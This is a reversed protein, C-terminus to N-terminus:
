ARNAEAERWAQFIAEKRTDYSRWHDEGRIRWCPTEGRALVYRLGEPKREWTRTSRYVVVESADPLVVRYTPGDYSMRPEIREIQITIPKESAWWVPTLLMPKVVPVM